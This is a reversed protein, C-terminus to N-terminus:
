FGAPSGGRTPEIGVEPVLLILLNVAEVKGRQFAKKKGITVKKYGHRIKKSM